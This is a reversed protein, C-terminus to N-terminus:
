GGCMALGEFKDAVFTEITAVTDVSARIKVPVRESRKAGAGIVVCWREADMFETGVKDVKELFALMELITNRIMNPIM